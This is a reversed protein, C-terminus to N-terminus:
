TGSAVREAADRVGRAHSCGARPDWHRRCHTEGHGQVAAGWNRDAHRGFGGLPGPPLSPTSSRAKRRHSCPGDDLICTLHQNTDTMVTAAGM